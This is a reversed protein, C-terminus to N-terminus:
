RTLHHFTAYGVSQSVWQKSKWIMDDGSGVWYVNRIVQQSRDKAVCNEVVNQTAVQRAILDVLEADGAVLTCLYNVLIERNEGDLHRYNRTYPVSRPMQELREPMPDAAFLDAGLGRTSVLVDHHLVLSIGDDGRWDQVPGREDFIVRTASVQRVPLEVLLLPNRTANVMEPTLISRADRKTDNDSTLQTGITRMSQLFVDSGTSSCGAVFALISLGAAAFAYKVTMMALVAGM